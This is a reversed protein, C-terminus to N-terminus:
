KLKIELVEFKLLGAPVKIDVKDGVVRGLLGKGVPSKVSIKGLDSDAEEASVLTYEIKKGSDLNKLVVTTLIYAKDTRVQKEDLITAASLTRELTSIKIEVQNQEEKAAEYEANESLDGHARAESIKELVEDRKVSKLHNLEDKLRNYGDRTLYTGETM